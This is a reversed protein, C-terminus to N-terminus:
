GGGKQRGTKMSSSIVSPTSRPSLSEAALYSAGMFNSSVSSFAARFSALSLIWVKARAHASKFFVTSLNAVWSVSNSCFTKSLSVLSWALSSDKSCVVLALLSYLLRFARSALFSSLLCTTCKAVQPKYKKSLTYISSVGIRIV